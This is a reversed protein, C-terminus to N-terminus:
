RGPGRLRARHTFMLIEYVAKRSARRSKGAVKRAAVLTYYV